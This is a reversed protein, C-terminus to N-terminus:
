ARCLRRIYNRERLSIKGDVTTVCLCLGVIDERLSEDAFSLLATMEETYRKVAARGEKDERFSRKVSEFDFDEGFVHILAPCILLYEQENIRGDAAVSGLIFGARAPAMDMWARMYRCTKEIIYRGVKTIYNSKELLPIFEGPPLLDGALTDSVSRVAGSVADILLCGNYRAAFARALLDKELIRDDSDKM